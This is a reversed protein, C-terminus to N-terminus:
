DEPGIARPRQRARLAYTHQQYDCQWPALQQPGSYGADNLPPECYRRYACCRQQKTMACHTCWPLLDETRNQSYAPYATCVAKVSMHVAQEQVLQCNLDAHVRFDHWGAPATSPNPPYASELYEHVQLATPADRHSVFLLQVEEQRHYGILYRQAGTDVLPRDFETLRFQWPAKQLVLVPSHRWSDAYDVYCKRRQKPILACERCWNFEDELQVGRYDADIGRVCMLARHEKVYRCGEDAHIKFDNWRAPVRINNRAHIPWSQYTLYRHILAASPGNIHCYTVFQRPAVTANTTPVPTAASPPADTSSSPETEHPALGPMSTHTAGSDTSISVSEEDSSPSSPITVPDLSRDGKFVLRPQLEGRQQALDLTGLRSASDLPIYQPEDTLLAVDTDNGARPTDGKDLNRIFAYLFECTNRFLRVGTETSLGIIILTLVLFTHFWIWDLPITITIINPDVAEAGSPLSAAAVAAAAKAVATAPLTPPGRGAARNREIMSQAAAASAATPEGANMAAAIEQLGQEDRYPSVPYTRVESASAPAAAAASPPETDQAPAASGERTSDDPTPQEEAAAAVAPVAPEAPQLPTSGRQLLFQVLEHEPMQRVLQQMREYESTARAPISLPPVNAPRASAAPSPVPPPPMSGAPPAVPPIAAPARAVTPNWAEIAEARRSALTAEEVTDFPSVAVPIPPPSVHTIEVEASSAAAAQPWAPPGTPLNLCREPAQEDHKRLNEQRASRRDSGRASGSHSSRASHFQSHESHRSAERRRSDRHSDRPSDRRSRHSDQRRHSDRGDRDRPANRHSDEDRRSQSGRSAPRDPGTSQGRDATRGRSTDAGKGKGKRSDRPTTRDPDRRPTRSHSDSAIPLVPTHEPDTASSRAAQTWVDTSSSGGKGTATHAAARDWANEGKRREKGPPLELTNPSTETPPGNGKGSTEVTNQADGTSATAGTDADIVVTATPTAGLLTTDEAPTGPAAGRNRASQPDHRANAAARIAENHEDRRKKDTEQAAKLTQLCWLKVHKPELRQHDLLIDNFIGRLRERICEPSNWDDLQYLEERDYNAMTLLHPHGCTKCLLNPVQKPCVPYKLCNCYHTYQDMGTCFYVLCDTSINKALDQNPKSDGKKGEGQLLDNWARLEKGNARGNDWMKNIKEMWMAFYRQAPNATAHYLSAYFDPWIQKRLADDPWPKELRSDWEWRTDKHCLYRRLGGQKETTQSARFYPTRCAYWDEKVDHHTWEGEFFRERKTVWLNRWAVQKSLVHETMLHWPARLFGALTYGQSPETLHKNLYIAKQNETAHPQTEINHQPRGSCVRETAGEWNNPIEIWPDTDNRGSEYMRANREEETLGPIQKPSWAEMPTSEPAAAAAVTDGAPAKAPTQSTDDVPKQAPAKAASAAAGSPASGGPTAGSSSGRPMAGGGTAPRKSFASLATRAVGAVDPLVRIRENMFISWDPVTSFVPHRGCFGLEHPEARVGEVQQSFIWKQSLLAAHMTISMPIEIMQEQPFPFRRTDWHDHNKIELVRQPLYQPIKDDGDFRSDFKWYYPTNDPGVMPALEFTNIPSRPITMYCGVDMSPTHLTISKLSGVWKNIVTDQPLADLNMFFTVAKIDTETIGLAEPTIAPDPNENKREQTIQQAKNIIENQVTYFDDHFRAYAQLDTGHYECGALRQSVPKGTLPNKYEIDAACTPCKTDGTILTTNVNRKGLTPCISCPWQAHVM